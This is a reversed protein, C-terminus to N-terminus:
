KNILKIISKLFKYNELEIYFVGLRNRTGNSNKLSKNLKKYRVRFRNNKKIQNIKDQILDKELLNDVFYIYSFYQKSNYTIKERALTQLNTQIQFTTTNILKNMLDTYIGSGPGRLHFDIPYIKKNKLIFEFHIPANEIKFNICIKNTLKIALNRLNNNQYNFIIKKDVFKNQRSKEKRSLSIFFFKKKICFGDIAYIQDSDIYEEFFFKDHSSNLIKTNKLIFINESGSGIIPKAIFIKKLTKIRRIEQYAFFSPQNIEKNQLIRKFMLKNSIKKILNLKIGDLNLESNLYGILLMPAETAFSFIREIKEKKLIEKIQYKKNFPTHYCKEVYKIGPAKSNEDFGIIRFKKSLNTVYNKQDVGLGFCAVKQKKKM